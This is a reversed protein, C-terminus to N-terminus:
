YVPGIDARGQAVTLSSYTSRRGGGSPRSRWWAGTRACSRTARATTPISYRRSPDARLGVRGMSPHHLFLRGEQLTIVADADGPFHYTGAIDALAAAPLVRTTREIPRFGPWGYVDSLTGLIERALPSGADSNTVM